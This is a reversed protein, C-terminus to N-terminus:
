NAAGLFGYVIIFVAGALTVTGVMVAVVTVNPAALGRRRLFILCQIAGLGGVMGAVLAIWTMFGSSIFGLSPAGFFFTALMFLALGLFFWSAKKMQRVENSM